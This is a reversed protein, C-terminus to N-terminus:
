CGAYGGCRDGNNNEENLKNVKKMEKAISSIVYNPEIIGSEIKNFIHRSIENFIEDINDGTLASCEFFLLNNETCFLKGDETRVVRQDELDGKNGVVCVSCESRAANRADALWTAIHQFSEVKTIDYVIIIGIAGRYYSRAVSRFKEQGATDWIQLKIEQNDIHVNKASFDVGITQTTNKRFRNYIFQHLICSKGVGSDGVLVLKFVYDNKDELSGQNQSDTTSNM